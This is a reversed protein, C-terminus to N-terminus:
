RRLPTGRSGARHRTLNMRENWALLLQVYGALREAHTASLSLGLARLPRGLREEIQLATPGQEVHFALALRRAVVLCRPAGGRVRARGGAGGAGPPLRGRGHGQARAGPPR